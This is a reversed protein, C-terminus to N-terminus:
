TQKNKMQKFIEGRKEKRERKQRETTKTLVNQEGSVFLLCLHLSFAESESEYGSELVKQQMQVDCSEERESVRESAQEQCVSMILGRDATELEM